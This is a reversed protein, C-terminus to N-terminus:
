FKVKVDTTQEGNIVKILDFEYIVDKGNQEMLQDQSVERAPKPLHLILRSKAGELMTNLMMMTSDNMDVSEFPTSTRSFMNGNFSYTVQVDPMDMGMGGGTATQNENMFDQFGQLDEINDFRFSMGSNLFAEERSGKMFMVMKEVYKKKAPDNKISDPVRTSFDIISDVEAPFDKWIQADVIQRLSDESADPYFSSMMGMMMARTSSIVDTYVLYEGSGDENLYIEETINACSTLLVILVVITKKAHQTLNNM